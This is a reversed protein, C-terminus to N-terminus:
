RSAIVFRRVATAGALFMVGVLAIAGLPSATQPLEEAAVATESSV